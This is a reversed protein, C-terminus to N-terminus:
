ITVNNQAKLLAHVEHRLSFDFVGMTRNYISETPARPLTWNDVGSDVYYAFAHCALKGAKCKAEHICGDCPTSETLFKRYTEM